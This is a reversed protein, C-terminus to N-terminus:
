KKDYVELRNRGKKKAVYLAKDAYNLLNDVGMQTSSIGISITLIKDFISYSHEINLSHMAKLIKDALLKADQVTTYPLIVVFEEGGYRAIFDTKRSLTNKIINAVRFLAIDGLEHGYIDNYEKFKDIDIMFFSLEKGSRKVAEVESAIKEEYSRRNAINTLQDVYSLNLLKKNTEKLELALLKLQEESAKIKTVDKGMAISGIIDGKENKMNQTNWSITRSSGDKCLITTELDIIEVGSSIIELVKAYIFDRYEKNPYLLEWINNNDIVEEKTYGSIKEAAKNWMIVNANVDLMNLWMTTNNLIIRQFEKNILKDLM